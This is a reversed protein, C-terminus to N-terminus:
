AAVEIRIVEGGAGHAELIHPVRRVEAEAEERTYRGAKSRDVTYGSSCTRYWAENKRSWINFVASGAFLIRDLTEARRYNRADIAKRLEAELRARRRLANVKDRLAAPQGSFLSSCSENFLEGGAIVWWMSNINYFAQGRVWRGHRDRFWVTQGQELLLGDGSKRNYDQGWHPRGLAKDTHWSEAYGAHIRALPPLPADPEMVSMPAIRRLWDLVRMRELRFRQRDLYAFRELKGYDHRPGNPSHLPSIEAWVKMEFARGSVSISCRLAGKRGLRHHPSLCRYYRHVRPDQGITWGRARLMRILGGYVEERFSPDNADDQWIGITTDHLKISLPARM